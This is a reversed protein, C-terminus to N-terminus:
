LDPKIFKIRADQIIIIILKIILEEQEFLIPVKLDNIQKLVQRFDM